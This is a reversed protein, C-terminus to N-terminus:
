GFHVLADPAHELASAVQSALRILTATERMRAYGPRPSTIFPKLNRPEPWLRRRCLPRLTTAEIAGFEPRGLGLWELLDLGDRRDVELFTAQGQLAFRLPAPSPAATAM